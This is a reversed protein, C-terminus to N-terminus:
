FLLRKVSSAWNTQGYEDLSKLMNYSLTAYRYNPLNLIKIWYKIYRKATQIWLPYRGCDGLVAANCSRTGICVYRKFAYRQM